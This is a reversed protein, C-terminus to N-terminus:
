ASCRLSPVEQHAAVQRRNKKRTVTLPLLAHGPALTCQLHRQIPAHGPSSERQSGIVIEEGARKQNKMIVIVIEAVNMHLVPVHGQALHHAGDEGGPHALALHDGGKGTM